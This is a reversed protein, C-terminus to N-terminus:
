QYGLVILTPQGGNLISGSTDGNQDITWSGSWSSSSHLPPTRTATATFTLGSDPSSVDYTYPTVATSLSPDILSSYSPTTVTQLTALDTAYTRYELWYLRQASWIAQLNAAAVNARAQELSQQFRPVGMSILVGVVIIAVMMEVLSYARKCPRPRRRYISVAGNAIRHQWRPRELTVSPDGSPPISLAQAATYEAFPAAPPVPRM